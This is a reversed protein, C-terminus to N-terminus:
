APQHEPGPSWEQCMESQKQQNPSKQRSGIGSVQVNRCHSLSGGSLPARNWVRQPRDVSLKASIKDSKKDALIKVFGDSSFNVKARGNGMFSFKGVKYEIKETKLSEETKGVSSVEPSTYIVSPILNHNLYSAQGALQEAVAIGEDEAKHALMPGITVDGIAFINPHNTQLNENVIIQGM